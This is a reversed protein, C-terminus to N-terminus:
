DEKPPYNSKNIIISDTCFTATEYCQSILVEFGSRINRGSVSLRALQMEHETDDQGYYIGVDYTMAKGISGALDTMGIRKKKMGERNVQSVAIAAVNFEVAIGRIGEMIKQIQLYDKESRVDSAMLDPYDVILIDPHFGDGIIEKVWGRLQKVTLQGTPFEKIMLNKAKNKLNKIMKRIHRDAADTGFAMEQERVETHYSKFKGDRTRDIVTRAVKTQDALATLSKVYRDIIVEESVELTVHAVRRGMMMAHKGVHVCFHTKGSKAGGVYLLLEKRAPRAGRQDLEKIGLEFPDAERRRHPGMYDPTLCRGRRSNAKYKLEFAAEMIRQAEELDGSQIHAVSKQWSSIFAQQRVFRGASNLVYEPNTGADYTRKIARGAERYRDEDDPHSDALEGVIDIMHESPPQRHSEWYDYIGRAIHRWVSDYMELPVRTIVKEGERDYAALALLSEQMRAAIALTM